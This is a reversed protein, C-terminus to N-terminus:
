KKTPSFEYYASDQIDYYEVSWGKQVFVARVDLWFPKISKEGQEKLKAIVDRQYIIATGFAYKEVLLSNFVDIVIDPIIQMKKIINVSTAEGKIM